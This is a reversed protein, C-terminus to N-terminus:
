FIYVLFYNCFLGKFFIFNFQFFYPQTQCAVFFWFFLIAMFQWVHGLSWFINKKKQLIKCLWVSNQAQFPSLRAMYALSGLWFGLDLFCSGSDFFLFISSQVFNKVQVQHFVHLVCHHFWFSFHLWLSFHLWM